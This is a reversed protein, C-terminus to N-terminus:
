VFGDEIEEDEDLFGLYVKLLYLFYFFIVWDVNLVIIDYCGYWFLKSLFFILRVKLMILLILDIIVGNLEYVILM